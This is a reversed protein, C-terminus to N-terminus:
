TQHWKYDLKRTTQKLTHPNKDRIVKRKLPAVNELAYHFASLLYETVQDFGIM